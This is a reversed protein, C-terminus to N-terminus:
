KGFTHADVKKVETGDADKLQSEDLGLVDCIVSSVKKALHPAGLDLTFHEPDKYYPQPLEKTYSYLDNIITGTGELAEIAAANFEEITTNKRRFWWEDYLEEKVATITAFVFKAKPFFKRLNNHIRRIMYAYYEKTTLPQDEGYLYIVDWAGVNWHVVDVDDGWNGKNKWEYIFRMTYVAFRGSDEPAMVEAVNELAKQVHNQYQFRISDGLLVVKKM